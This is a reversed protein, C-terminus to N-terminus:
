NHVGLQIDTWREGYELDDPYEAQLELTPVFRGGLGDGRPIAADEVYRDFPILAQRFSRAALPTLLSTPRFRSTGHLHPTLIGRPTLVYHVRQPPGDAREVVKWGITCGTSCAQGVFPVFVSHPRRRPPHSNPRAATFTPRRGVDGDRRQSSYENLVDVFVPEDLPCTPPAEEFLRRQRAYAEWRSGLAVVVASAAYDARWIPEVARGWVGPPARTVNFINEAARRVMLSLSAPLVADPRSSSPMGAEALMVTPDKSSFTIPPDSGCVDFIMDGKQPDPSTIHCLVKMPTNTPGARIGLRRCIAAFVWNMSMPLTTSRGPGLLHPPFQSLPSLLAGRQPLSFGENHMFERIAVVLGPLDYGPTDPDLVRGQGVLEQRCRTYLEDLQALSDQPAVDIFASFGLLVDDFTCEQDDLGIRVWTRFAQYRAMAGKLAQAWFRRPLAHPAPEEDM